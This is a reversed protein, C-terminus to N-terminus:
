FKCKIMFQVRHDGSETRGTGKLAFGFDFKHEFSKLFNGHFGFGAGQLTGCRDEGPLPDRTRLWAGEYFCYPVISPKAALDLGGLLDPASLEISGHVADDGVAEGEKYGRVNQVGGAQYQENSVLPQDALQGDVKAYLGLGAPLRQNRELGATAFLFNGRAGYRKREFESQRATLNRLGIHVGGSFQTLGTRDPRAASYLVSLPTYQIDAADSDGDTMGIREKFDKYDAGLTLNHQCGGNAPLPIIYRLGLSFGEGIVSFGEGFASQSDSVIGYIALKRDKSIWPDPMVYSAAMVAVQDTDEPSIQYQVALSHGQQWLHDYRLAGALRLERTSASARNNLELSGHLPLRDEVALDVDIVGLRRGPKLRPAVKLDPNRNLAAMEHQLDQVHLINGSRFSPLLGLIYDRRFYRSGSIRVRGIRGEIVELVVAGTDVTQEPINVLVTPYGQQHFFRELTDRAQEVDRATKGAGIFAALPAEMAAQAFLTAGVIQFRDIAFRVTEEAHSAVVPLTFLLLGLLLGFRRKLM